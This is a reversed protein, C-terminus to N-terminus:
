SPDGIAPLCSEDWPNGDPLGGTEVFCKLVPLLEAVQERSMHLRQSISENRQGGPGDINPGTSSVGLWIAPYMANSSEQVSGLQQYADRFEILGFGRSTKKTEM